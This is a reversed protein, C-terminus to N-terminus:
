QDKFWDDFKQGNPMTAGELYYTQRFLEENTILHETVAPYEYTYEYAETLNAGRLDADKLNAFSLNANNLDANRLYADELNASSLDADMLVANNLSGSWDTGSLDAGSLDAEYLVAGDLDAGELNADHLDVYVLDAYSLDAGRLDAGSLNTKTRFQSARAETSLFPVDLARAHADRLMLRGPEKRSVPEIGEGLDAGYLDAARLDTESLDAGSLDIITAKGTAQTFDRGNLAQVLGAEWLFRLVRRKHAVDIDELVTMTRAQALTRAAGEEEARLDHQLMLDSMKDLYAQVEDNQARQDEIAQAQRNQAGTYAFGFLALVLPIILLQMWDWVTKGRVERLTWPKRDQKKEGADQKGQKESVGSVIGASIFGRHIL